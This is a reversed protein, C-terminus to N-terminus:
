GLDCLQFTVELRQVQYGRRKGRFVDIGRHFLPEDAQYGQEASQQRHCCFLVHQSLVPHPQTVQLYFFLCTEVISCNHVPFRPFILIRLLAAM